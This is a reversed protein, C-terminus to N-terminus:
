DLVYTHELDMKASHNVPSVTNPIKSCIVGQGEVESGQDKWTM